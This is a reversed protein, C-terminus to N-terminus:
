YRPREKVFTAVAREMVVIGGCVKVTSLRHAIMVLTKDGPLAEIAAMVERETLNGLASTAEDLVILDYSQDPM